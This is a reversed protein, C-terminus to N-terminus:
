FLFLFLLTYELVFYGEITTYLSYWIQFSMLKACYLSSCLYTNFTYKWVGQTADEMELLTYTSTPKGYPLSPIPVSTVISWGESEEVEVRVEELLQDNLTNTVDFQGCPLPISPLFSFSLFVIYFVVCM